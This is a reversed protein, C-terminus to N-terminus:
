IHIVDVDDDEDAGDTFRSLLCLNVLDTKWLHIKWMSPREGCWGELKKM